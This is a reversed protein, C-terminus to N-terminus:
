TYSVGAVDCHFPFCIMILCTAKFSLRDYVCLWVDVCILAILISVDSTKHNLIKTVYISFSKNRRRRRETHSIFDFLIWINEAFVNIVYAYANPTHSEPVNDRGRCNDCDLKHRTSTEDRTHAYQLDFLWGNTQYDIEYPITNTHKKEPKRDWISGANARWSLFLM